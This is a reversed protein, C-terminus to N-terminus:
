WLDIVGTFVTHKDVTYGTLVSLFTAAFALCATCPPDVCLLMTMSSSTFLHLHPQRIYVIM